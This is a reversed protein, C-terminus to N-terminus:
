LFPSTQAKPSLLMTSLSRIKAYKNTLIDTLEFVPTDITEAGHTKFVAKIKDFLEERVAMEAPGQDITGKANKLVLKSKKAKKPKEGESPSPTINKLKETLYELEDKNIGQGDPLIRKVLQMIREHDAASMRYTRHLLTRSIPRLMM